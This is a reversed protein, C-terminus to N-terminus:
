ISKGSLFQSVETLHAKVRTQVLADFVPYFDLDSTLIEVIDMNGQVANQYAEIALLIDVGKQELGRKKRYRSTGTRM